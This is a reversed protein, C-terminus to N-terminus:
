FLEVHGTQQGNEGGKMSATYRDGLALIIYLVGRVIHMNLECQENTKLPKSLPPRANLPSNKRRRSRGSMELQGKIAHWAISPRKRSTRAIKDRTLAHHLEAKTTVLDVEM